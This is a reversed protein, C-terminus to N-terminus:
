KHQKNTVSNRGKTPGWSKNSNDQFHFQLVKGYKTHVDINVLDLKPTNGM